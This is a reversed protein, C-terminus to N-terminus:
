CIQCAIDKCGAARGGILSLNDGFFQRFFPSNFMSSNQVKVVKRTYINVVAPSNEVVLETFDPLKGVLAHSEASVLGLFLISIAVVLFQVRSKM